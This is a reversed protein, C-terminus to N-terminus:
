DDSSEEGREKEMLCLVCDPECDGGEHLAKQREMIAMEIQETEWDHICGRPDPKM